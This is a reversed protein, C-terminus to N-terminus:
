AAGRHTRRELFAEIGSMRYYVKRGLKIWSPMPRGASRAVAQSAPSMKIIDKAEETSVLYFGALAERKAQILLRSLHDELEKTETAPAHQIYKSFRRLADDLERKLEDLSPRQTASYHNM